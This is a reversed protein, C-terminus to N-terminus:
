SHAKRLSDGHTHTGRRDRGGAECRNQGCRDDGGRHGGGFADVGAGKGGCQPDGALRQRRAVAPARGAGAGGTAGRGGVRVDGDGGVPRAQNGREAAVVRGFPALAVGFITSIAPRM